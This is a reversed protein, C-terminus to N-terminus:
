VRIKCWRVKSISENKLSKFLNMGIKAQKIVCLIEKGLNSKWLSEVVNEIDM